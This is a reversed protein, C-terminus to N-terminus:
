AEFNAVSKALYEAIARHAALRKPIFLFINPNSDANCPQALRNKSAFQAAICCVNFYNALTSLTGL